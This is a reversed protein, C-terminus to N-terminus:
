PTRPMTITVASVKAVLLFNFENVYALGVAAGTTVAAAVVVTATM